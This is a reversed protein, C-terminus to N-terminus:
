NISLKSIQELLYGSLEDLASSIESIEKSTNSNKSTNKYFEKLSGDINEIANQQKDSAQSIEYILKAIDQVVTVFDKLLGGVIQTSNVGKKTSQVIDAAAIKSREALKRVETAVISFGLGADGARAAEISANLALINTQHSIENIIEITNAINSIETMNEQAAVNIKEVDRIINNAIENAKASNENNKRIRDTVVEVEHSIDGASEKQKETGNSLEFSKSKLTTGTQTLQESNERILKIMKKLDGTREQFAVELEEQRKKHQKVRLKYFFTLLGIIFVFMFTKFWWTLWWPPSIKVSISTSKENWVGDNNSAKVSFLYDGPDLNTYVAKRDTRTKIWDSDFGDMKYAYENNKYVSFNLASFEFSFVNQDYELIIEKTESIHKKLPSIGKNNYDIEVTKNFIKFDTIIVPPLYNEPKINKPDYFTFGDKTGFFIEGTKSLLGSNRNFEQYPLGNNVNFNVFKAEISDNKKSISIKSMGNYTGVWIDEGDDMIAFVSNNVLGDEEFFQIFKNSEYDYLNLGLQTGVWLNNKKDIHIANIIPNSLDDLNDESGHFHTFDDTEENYLNLGDVTGIWINDKHDEKIIWATNNSLSKEDTSSYMYHTFKELEYDFRNLGGDHTGVWLRGKSDELISWVNPNNLSGPDSDIPMYRKFKKTESNFLNLGGAWTGAWLNGRSDKLLSLVSNSGISTSDEPDYKFNELAGENRDFLMLGGQDIGIWLTGDINEVFDFVSKNSLSKSSGPTYQWNKFPSEELNYINIGGMYAGFWLSGRKNEAISWIENSSLSKNNFEENVIKKFEGEKKNYYHLGARSAVWVDGNKDEHIARVSGNATSNPVNVNNFFYTTEESQGSRNIIKLGGETGVWINGDSDECFSRIYNYYENKDVYHKVNNNKKNIVSIGSTQTGVWINNKSDALISWIGDSAITNENSPDHLMEKFKETEKNYRCLGGFTAAWLDGDLDIALKSVFNSMLKFKGSASENYRLFIDKDRIYKNVGIATAIWLDGNEDEIIDNILNSSISTTDTRSYSYTIFNYGDYRNLGDNTGVWLIGRSDFFLALVNANSLGDKISLHEFQFKNQSVIISCDGIIFVFASILGVYVGKLYNM